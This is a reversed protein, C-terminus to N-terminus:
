GEGQAILLIHDVFTAVNRFPTKSRSMADESALQVELEFEDFLLMEVDAIFSVLGLSDFVGKKGFLRTEESLEEALEAELEEVHEALCGMVLRVIEDRKM